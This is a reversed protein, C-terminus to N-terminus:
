GSALFKNNTEGACAVRACSILVQRTIYLRATRKIAYVVILPCVSAYRSSATIKYEYRGGQGTPDVISGDMDCLVM